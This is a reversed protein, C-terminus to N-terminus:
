STGRSPLTGRMLLPRKLQTPKPAKAAMAAQQAALKNRQNEISGFKSARDPHKLAHSKMLTKENAAFHGGVRGAKPQGKIMKTGKGFCHESMEFNVPAPKPRVCDGVRKYRTFTCNKSQAFQRSLAHATGTYHSEKFKKVGSHKADLLGDVDIYLHNPNTKYMYHILVPSIPGVNFLFVSPVPAAEAMEKIHALVVLAAHILSCAGVRGRTGCPHPLMRRCAWSHRMSEHAHILFGAM